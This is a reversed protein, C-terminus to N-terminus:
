NQKENAIDQITWSERIDFHQEVDQLKVVNGHLSNLVFEENWIAIIYEDNYKTDRVRSVRVAASEDLYYMNYAM